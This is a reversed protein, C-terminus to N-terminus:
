ESEKLFQEAQAKWDLSYNWGEGWTVRIINEILEKAKALQEDLRDYCCKHGTYDKIKHEVGWKQCENKTGYFYNHRDVNYQTAKDMGWNGAETEFVFWKDGQEKLEANEKELEAIRKKYNDLNEILQKHQEQWENAKNYGFEAGDKWIDTFKKYREEEGINLTVPYNKYYREEAEKEFM